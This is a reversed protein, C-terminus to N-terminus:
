KKPEPEPPPADSNFIDEIAKWSGDAQKRWVTLYKGKDTFPKGTRATTTLSLTGQSYGLSGSVEVKDTGFSLAFNPDSMMPGLVNKIDAMGKFAPENPFMVVADDAYFSGFKVPDKAAGAKSWDDSLSKITQADKASTDSACGTSFVLVGACGALLMFRLM